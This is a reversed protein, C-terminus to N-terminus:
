DALWKALRYLGYGLAAAGAAPHFGLPRWVGPHDGRAM